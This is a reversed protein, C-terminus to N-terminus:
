KVEQFIHTTNKIPNLPTISQYMFLAFVRLNVNEMPSWLIAKKHNHNWSEHAYLPYRKNWGEEIAPLYPQLAFRWRGFLMKM